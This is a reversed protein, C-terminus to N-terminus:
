ATESNSLARVERQREERWAGATPLTTANRNVNDTANWHMHDAPKESSVDRVKM